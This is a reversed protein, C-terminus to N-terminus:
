SLAKMFAVFGLEAYKSAKKKDSTMFGITVETLATMMGVAFTVSMSSRPGICDRLLIEVERLLEMSEDRVEKTIRHSVSLQSMAQRKSPNAVGWKLYAMWISRMRESAAAEKSYDALMSETIEQKITSYLQNLLDDKTPFYLFLSGTAVGAEKAIRSTSVGVGEDAIADAAAELLASRKEESLPRSMSAGQSVSLETM